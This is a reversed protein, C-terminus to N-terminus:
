VGQSTRMRIGPVLSALPASGASDTKLTSRRSAVCAYDGVVSNRLQYVVQIQISLELSQVQERLGKARRKNLNTKTDRQSYKRTTEKFTSNINGSLKISIKFSRNRKTPSSILSNPSNHFLKLVTLPTVWFELTCFM